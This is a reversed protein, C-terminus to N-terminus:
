EEDFPSGAADPEHGSLSIINERGVRLKSIEGDEEMESLLMSVKSKSWETEDVIDVQKMRGGNDELLRRVRDEDSLLEAESVPPSAAPDRTQAGATGASPGGADGPSGTEGDTGSARGAPIAGSYWALGVLGLLLVVGLAVPLMLGSGGDNPSSGNPDGAGDSGAGGNTGSGDSGPTATGEGPTEAGAEVRAYAVRPRADLFRREGVWTVTDSAGLAGGAVSDPEPDVGDAAFSLNRGHAFVLRQDTDIYMGGEFVDSVVVRDERVQAFGSWLFSLEVVGVAQTGGPQTRVFAARRFGTATMNRGTANTGFATLREARTRFDRVFAPETREFEAAYEEFTAVQSENELLRLYQLTWRASGNEYATVRFVTSDFGDPTAQPVPGPATQSALGANAAPEGASGPAAASAAALAPAAAVAGLVLVAVLGVAGLRRTM